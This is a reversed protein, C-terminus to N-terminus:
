PTYIDAGPEPFRQWRCQIARSAWRVTPVTGLFVLLTDLCDLECYEGVLEQEGELIHEYIPKTLFSKSPVQLLDCMKGLGVYRSAGYGFLVDMLDVHIDHYRGQYNNWKWEGGSRYLEPAAIGHLM